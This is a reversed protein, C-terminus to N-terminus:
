KSTASTIALDKAKAYTISFGSDEWIASALAAIYEINSM